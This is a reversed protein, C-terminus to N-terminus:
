EQAKMWRIFPAIAWGKPIFWKKTERNWRAGKAKAEDKEEFPVNLYIDASAVDGRPIWRDFPEMPLGKPIFWTKLRRDWSAGLNKAEDMEHYPVNIAVKTKARNSERQQTPETPKRTNKKNFTAEKKRFPKLMVDIDINHQQAIRKAAELATAAENESAGRDITMNLLKKIKKKAERRDM